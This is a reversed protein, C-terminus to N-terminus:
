RGQGAGEGGQGAHAGHLGTPWPGRWVRTGDYAERPDHLSLQFRRLGIQVDYKNGDPLVHAEPSRGGLLVSYIGRQVQIVDAEGLRSEYLHNFRSGDSTVVPPKRKGNYEVELKM